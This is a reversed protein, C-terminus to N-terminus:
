DGAADWRQWGEAWPVSRDAPPAAPRVSGPWPLQPLVRDRALTIHTEMLRAALDGRRRAIARWIALHAAQGQEIIAEPASRAQLTRLRAVHHGIPELVAALLRNGSAAVVQAHFVAGSEFLADPRGAAIEAATAAITAEMARIEPGGANEAALRAALAELTIRLTFIEVADHATLPAVSAGRHPRVVVLRERELRHLAERVPLRSVGFQAALRSEILREGPALELGVIARLIQRYVQVQLSPEPPADGDSRM